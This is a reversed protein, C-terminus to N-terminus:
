RISFFAEYRNSGGKEVGNKEEERFSLGGELSIMANQILM